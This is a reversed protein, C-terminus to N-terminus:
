TLKIEFFRRIEADIIYDVQDRRVNKWQASIIRFIHSSLVEKFKVIDKCTPKMEIIAVTVKLKLDEADAAFMKKNVIGLQEIRNIFESALLNADNNSLPVNRHLHSFFDEHFLLLTYHVLGFTYMLMPLVDIFAEGRIRVQLSKSHLDNKYNDVAKQIDFMSEYERLTCYEMFNLETCAIFLKNRQSSQFM